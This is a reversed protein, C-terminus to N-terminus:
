PNGYLEQHTATMPSDNSVTAWGNCGEEECGCPLAVFQRDYVERTINSRECYAAIFEDRTLPNMM